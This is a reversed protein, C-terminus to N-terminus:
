FDLKEIRRKYKGIETHTLTQLLHVEQTEVSLSANTHTRNVICAVSQTRSISPFAAIIVGMCRTHVFVKTCAIKHMKDEAARYSYRHNYRQATYADSYASHVADM